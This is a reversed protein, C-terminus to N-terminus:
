LFSQIKNLVQLTITILNKQLELFTKDLFILFVFIRYYLVM